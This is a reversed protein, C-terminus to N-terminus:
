WITKVLFLNGTAWEKERNFLNFLINRITCKGHYIQKPGYVSDDLLKNLKSKIILWKRPVKAGIDSRLVMEIKSLLTDLLGGNKQLIIILCKREIHIISLREKNDAICCHVWNNSTTTATSNM